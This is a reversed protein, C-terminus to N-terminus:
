DFLTLFEESCSNTHNFHKEMKLLVGLIVYTATLPKVGQSVQYVVVLLVGHHFRTANYHVEFLYPLSTLSVFPLM